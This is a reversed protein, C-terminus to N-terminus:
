YRYLAALPTGAPLRDPGVRRMRAGHQWAESIILNVVDTAGPRWDDLPEAPSDALVWQPTTSAVLLDSVRGQAAADALEALDTSALGTGLRTALRDFLVDDQEAIVPQIAEQVREHLERTSLEEPSGVSAGIVRHHRTVGQYLAVRPATGAVVLPTEFDDHLYHMVADDVKHFFRTLREKRDEDQAGSGHSIISMGSAGVPAGAHSSSMRESREFWLAQEVSTPLDPVECATWRTLEVRSLSVNESGVTLVYCTPGDAVSSLLPGVTFRDGVTALADVPQDIAFEAAYGPSLYLALGGSHEAIATRGLMAETPALLEDISSTKLAKLQDRAVAVLRKLELHARRDDPHRRDIPVIISVCPTSTRRTLADFSATTLTTM